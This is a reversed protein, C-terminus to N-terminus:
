SNSPCSSRLPGSLCVASCCVVAYCRILHMGRPGPFAKLITHNHTIAPSIKQHATQESVQHGQVGLSCRPLLPRPRVLRIDAIHLESADDVLLRQGSLLRGGRLLGDHTLAALGRDSLVPDSRV